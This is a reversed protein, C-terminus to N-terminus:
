IGDSGIEPVRHKRNERSKLVGGIAGAIIAALALIVVIGCGVM